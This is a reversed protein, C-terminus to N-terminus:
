AAGEERGGDGRGYEGGRLLARGARLADLLEGGAWRRGDNEVVEAKERVRALEDDHAGRAFGRRSFEGDAIDATRGLREANCLGQLFHFRVEARAKDAIEGVESAFGHVLEGRALLARHREEDPRVDPAARQGLRDAVDMGLAATDLHRIHVRGTVEVVRATAVGTLVDVDGAAPVIGAIQTLPHAGGHEVAERQERERAVEALGPIARSGAGRGKEVLESHPM